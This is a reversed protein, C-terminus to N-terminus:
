DNKKVAKEVDALVSPLVFRTSIRFLWRPISVGPTTQLSYMARTSFRSWPTACVTMILRKNEVNVWRKRTARYRNNLAIDENQRLLIFCTDASVIMTDIYLLVWFRSFPARVEFYYTQPSLTDDGRPVPEFSHIQSFTNKWNKLDAAVAAVQQFPFPITRFTAALYRPPNIWTLKAYSLNKNGHYHAKIEKHYEEQIGDGPSVAFVHAACVAAIIFPVICRIQLIM